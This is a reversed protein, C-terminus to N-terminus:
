DSDHQKGRNYNVNKHRNPQRDARPHTACQLSLAGSQRHPPLHRQGLSFRRQRYGHDPLQGITGGDPDALRNLLRLLTSKGAGSPGVIATAGAPIEAEISELIRLSGRSLSVDRLEFLVLV